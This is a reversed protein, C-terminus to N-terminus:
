VRKVDMLSIPSGCHACVSSGTLDIPAGCNPCNVMQIKQRLEALEQASLTHIFSKERLFDLFGIFRGHESCRWYSFKTNGQLDHILPLRGSCRPCRLLEPRVADGSAPQEGIMKMLKLSAGQSLEMSEHSDFWFAQCGMCVDIDVVSIHTVAGPRADLTMGTMEAACNPCKM